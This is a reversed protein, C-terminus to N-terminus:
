QEFGGIGPAIPTSRLPVVEDKDVPAISIPPLKM